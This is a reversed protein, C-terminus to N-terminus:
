PLGPFQQQNKVKPIRRFVRSCVDMLDTYIMARRSPLAQGLGADISLGLDEFWWAVFALQTTGVM